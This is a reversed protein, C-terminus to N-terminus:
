LDVDEPPPDEIEPFEEDIPDLTKLLELLSNKPVRIRLAMEVHTLGWDDFPASTAHFGLAEYFPELYTQATLTVACDPYDRAARALAEAMILRALGQGRQKEAVAVRGIAVRKEAPYPILRGYGALVGDQQLLLHLAQQDRCDLDPYACHQEVVFIAQRFRLVDYLEATSFDDFRRWELLSGGGRHPLAPLPHNEALAGSIMIWVGEPNELVDNNWLRLIRYGEGQLFRNRETEPASGHNHQGGDIEIILRAEHCAFDVIYPGLPVQRRFRYRQIQRSRLMRWIAQEAETTNHRLTRARSHSGAIPHKKM